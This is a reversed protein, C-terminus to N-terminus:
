ASVEVREHARMWWVVLVAAEYGYEEEALEIIRDCVDRPDEHMRRIARAIDRRSVTVREGEPM